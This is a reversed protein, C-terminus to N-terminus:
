SRSENATRQARVQEVAAEVTERNYPRRLAAVFGHAAHGAVGHDSSVAISMGPAIMRLLQAAELGGPGSPMTMDVVALDPTEGVHQAHALRALGTSVSDCTTVACGLDRLLRDLEM